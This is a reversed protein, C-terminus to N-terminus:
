VKNYVKNTPFLLPINLRRRYSDLMLLAIACATLIVWYTTYNSSEFGNNLIELDSIEFNSMNPFKREYFFEKVDTTILQNSESSHEIGDNLCAFLFDNEAILPELQKQDSKKTRVIVSSDEM